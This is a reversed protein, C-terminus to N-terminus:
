CNGEIIDLNTQLRQAEKAELYSAFLCAYVALDLVTDNISEFNPKNGKAQLAKLRSLKIGMMVKFVEEITIGATNAADKFNSYVDSDLAYDNNKLDHMKGIKKLVENMYINKKCYINDLGLKEINVYMEKLDDEAYSIKTNSPDKGALFNYATISGMVDSATIGLKENIEKKVDDEKM